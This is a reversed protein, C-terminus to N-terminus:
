FFLSPAVLSCELFGIVNSIFASISSRLSLPIYFQSIPWFNLKDANGIAVTRL